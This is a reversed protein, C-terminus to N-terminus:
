LLMEVLWILIKTEYTVINQATSYAKTVGTATTVWTMASKRANYIKKQLARIQEQRVAIKGQLTAITSEKKAIKKLQTNEEEHTVVIASIAAVDIVPQQALLRLGSVQLLILLIMKKM